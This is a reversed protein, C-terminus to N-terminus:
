GSPKVSTRDVTLLSQFRHFVWLGILGGIENLILDDVDATGVRLFMQLSELLVIIGGFIVAFGAYSRARKFLFPLLLGFPVFVGINGGFQHDPVDM